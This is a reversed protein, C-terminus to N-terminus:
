HNQRRKNNPSRGETADTSPPVPKKSSVGVGGGGGEEFGWQNGPQVAAKVVEEAWNAGANRLAKELDPGQQQQQPRRVGGGQNQYNNSASANGFASPKNHSNSRSGDGGGGFNDHARYSDSEPSNSTIKPLKVGPAASVSLDDTYMNPGFLM